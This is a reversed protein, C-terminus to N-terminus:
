VIEPIRHKVWTGPKDTGELTPRCWCFLHTEHGHNEPMVHRNLSPKQEHNIVWGPLLEM